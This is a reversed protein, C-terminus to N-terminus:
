VEHFPVGQARFAAVFSLGYVMSEIELNIDLPHDPEGRTCLTRFVCAGDSDVLYVAAPGLADVTQLGPHKSCEFTLNLTDPSENSNSM